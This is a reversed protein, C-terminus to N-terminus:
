VTPGTRSKIWVICWTPRGHTLRSLRSDSQQGGDLTWTLFVQRQLDVVM